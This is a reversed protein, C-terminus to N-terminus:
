SLLNLDSLLKMLLAKLLGNVVIISVNKLDVEFLNFAILSALGDFGARTREASPIRLFFICLM